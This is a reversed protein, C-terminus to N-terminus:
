LTISSKFILSVKEKGETTIYKDMEGKKVKQAEVFSPHNKNIHRWLTSSAKDTFSRTCHNCFWRPNKYTFHQYVLSRKKMTSSSSDDDLEIIPSSSEAM